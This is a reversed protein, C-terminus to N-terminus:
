RGVQWVQCGQGWGRECVEGRGRCRPRGRVREYEGCKRGRFSPRGRGERETEGGEGVRGPGLSSIASPFPPQRGRHGPRPPSSTVRGWRSSGPLRLPPPPAPPQVSRRRRRLARPGEAGVGHVWPAAAASRGQAPRTILLPRRWVRSCTPARRSGPTPLRLARTGPSEAALGQCVKEM